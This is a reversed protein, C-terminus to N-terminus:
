RYEKIQFIKEIIAVLVRGADRMGTYKVAGLLAQKSKPLGHMDVYRQEHRFAGSTGHDIKLM